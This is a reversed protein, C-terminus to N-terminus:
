IYGELHQTQSQTQLPLLALQWRSVVLSGENQSTMVAMAM